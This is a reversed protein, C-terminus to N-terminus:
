KGKQVEVPRAGHITVRGGDAGTITIDPMNACGQSLVGVVAGAVAIGAYILVKWWSLERKRGEAVAKKGAEFGTEIM